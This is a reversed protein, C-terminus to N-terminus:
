FIILCLMYVAIQLSIYEACPHYGLCALCQYISFRCEFNEILVRNRYFRISILSYYFEKNFEVLFIQQTIDCSVLKSPTYRYSIVFDM